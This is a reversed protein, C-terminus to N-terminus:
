LEIPLLKEPLYKEPCNIIYITHYSYYNDNLLSNPNVKENNKYRIIITPETLNNDIKIRIDKIDMEIFRYLGGVRGFCKVLTSESEDSYYSGAFLFFHASSSKEVGTDNVLQRLKIPQTYYYRYPMLDVCSFMTISLLLLTIIKKM